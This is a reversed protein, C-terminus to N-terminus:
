GQLAGAAADANPQIEFYRDLKTVAMVGAVFPSLGCLIVRASQTNADAVLAVLSSLGPSSIRQSGSLDLIMRAGDRRVLPHLQDRFATRTSDDLPGETRALVYGDSHTITLQM